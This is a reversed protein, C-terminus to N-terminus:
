PDDTELRLVAGPPLTGLALRTRLLTPTFLGYRLVLVADPVASADEPVTTAPIKESTAM